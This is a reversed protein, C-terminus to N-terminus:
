TYRASVHLIGLDFIPPHLSLSLNSPNRCFYLPVFLVFMQLFCPQFHWQVDWPLINQLLLRLIRPCMFGSSPLTTFAKPLLLFLYRCCKGCGRGFALSLPLGSIFFVTCRCFPVHERLLNPDNWFCSKIKTKCSDQIKKIWHSGTGTNMWTKGCMRVGKKSMDKATELHSISPHDIVTAHGTGTTPGPESRTRVQNPCTRVQNPGGPAM